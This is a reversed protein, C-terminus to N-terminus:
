DMKEAEIKVQFGEQTVYIRFVGDDNAEQIRFEFPCKNGVIIGEGFVKRFETVYDNFDAVEQENKWRLYMQCVKECKKIDKIFSVVRGRLTQKGDVGEDASRKPNVNHHALTLKPQFISPSTSLGFSRLSDSVNSKVNSQEDELYRQCYFCWYRGDGQKSSFKYCKPCRKGLAEPDHPARPRSDQLARPRSQTTAKALPQVVPIRHIRIQKCTPCRYPGELHSYLKNHCINCIVYESKDTACTSIVHKEQSSPQVVSIVQKIIDCAVEQPLNFFESRVLKYKNLIRHIEKEDREVDSSEYYEVLEFKGPVGTHSSLERVREKVDRTTFGIKVLGVMHENILVYIYGRAM